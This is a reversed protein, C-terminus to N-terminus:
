SKRGGVLELVLRRCLLATMDRRYEASARVDDIPRVVELAYAALKDGLASADAKTLSVDTVLRTLVPTPACSGIAARLTGAEADFAVCCNVLALDHGRVRKIKGFATALRRSAAPVVVATALEGPALTTKKVGAFFTALPIDREGKVSKVRLRAGLVLLAPATDMCPSANCLNGGITARCRVQFSGLAEAGRALGPYREVVLADDCLQRMTVASGIVLGGDETWRITALEPIAKIDVVVAARGAAPAAIGATTSGDRLKLQLDTGGALVMARDPMEALLALAAELSTPREFRTDSM